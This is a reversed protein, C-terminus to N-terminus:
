CSAGRMKINKKPGAIIKELERPMDNKALELAESSSDTAIFREIYPNIGLDKLNNLKRCRDQFEDMPKQEGSDTKENTKM